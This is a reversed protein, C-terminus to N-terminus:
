EAVYGEALLGEFFNCIELLSSKVSDSPANDLAWSLGVGMDQIDQYNYGLM